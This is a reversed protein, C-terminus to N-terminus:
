FVDGYERGGGFMEVHEFKGEENQCRARGLGEMFKIKEEGFVKMWLTM